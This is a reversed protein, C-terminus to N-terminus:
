AEILKGGSGELLKQAGQTLKIGQLQYAKKVEGSLYLKVFRISKNILNHEKLVDVTIVAENPLQNLASIPLKDSVFSKRSTFGSKPTVRYFPTQGGEFGPRVSGGSRSKQGKYGRGCTDGCKGSSGRGKRAKNKVSGKAPKLQNLGSM